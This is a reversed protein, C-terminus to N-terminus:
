IESPDAAVVHINEIRIAMMRTTFLYWSLAARYERMCLGEIDDPLAAIEIQALDLATGLAKLAILAPKLMESSGAMRTLAGNSTADLEPRGAPAAIRKAGEVLHGGVDKSELVSVEQPMVISM